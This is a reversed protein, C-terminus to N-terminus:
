VHLERHLFVLWNKRNRNRKKKLNSLSDNEQNGDNNVYM